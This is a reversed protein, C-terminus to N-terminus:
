INEKNSNSEAFELAEDIDCFVNGDKTFIYSLFAIDDDPVELTFGYYEKLMNLKISYIKNVVFEKIKELALITDASDEIARNISHM